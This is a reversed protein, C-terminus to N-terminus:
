ACGGGHQKAPWALAASEFTKVVLFLTRDRRDAMIQGEPLAQVHWAVDALEWRGSAHLELLLITDAVRQKISQANYTTWSQTKSIGRLDVSDGSGDAAHARQFLTDSNFHQRDETAGTLLKVEERDYKSLLGAAVVSHWENFHAIQKSPAARTETDRLVGISDEVIKTQGIGCFMASLFAKFQPTPVQWESAEAFKLCWQVPTTQLPSRDVIGQLKTGKRIKAAAWAEAVKRFFAMSIAVKDPNEHLLGGLFLPAGSSYRVMSSARCRLVAFVLRWYSEFRSDDM